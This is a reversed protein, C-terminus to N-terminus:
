TGQQEKQVYIIDEFNDSVTKREQDGIVDFDNVADLRLSQVGSDGFYGM